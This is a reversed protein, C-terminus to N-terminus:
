MGTNSKGAANRGQMNKMREARKANSEASFAVPVRFTVYKAGAEYWAAGDEDQRLKKWIDPRRACLADLKRRTVPSATYVHAIKEEDDWRIITEMEARSYNM